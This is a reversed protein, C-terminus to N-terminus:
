RKEVDGPELKKVEELWAASGRMEPQDFGLSSHPKVV